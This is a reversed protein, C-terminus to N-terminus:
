SAESRVAIKGAIYRREQTLGGYGYGDGRVDDVRVYCKEDLSGLLEGFAKFVAAVFAAKEDKTNTGDTIRIDLWFAGKGTEKLSRGAIFWDEPAVEQALMATVNPDKRLLSQGLKAVAAVIDAKRVSKAQPTVYQITIMPM